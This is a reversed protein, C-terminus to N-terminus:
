IYDDCTNISKKIHEPTFHKFHNVTSPVGKHKQFNRLLHVTHVSVVESLPEQKYVLTM